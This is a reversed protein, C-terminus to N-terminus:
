IRPNQGMSIFGDYSIRGLAQGNDTQFVLYDANPRPYYAMSIINGRSDGGAVVEFTSEDLGTYSGISYSYIVRYNGNVLGTSFLFASLPFAFAFLGTAGYRDTIPVKFNTVLRGLPDFVRANPCDDPLTPTGNANRCQLLLPVFDGLQYRAHYSM